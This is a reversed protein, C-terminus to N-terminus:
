VAQQADAVRQHHTNSMVLLTYGDPAAKAVVDTGIISGAGPRNEVV